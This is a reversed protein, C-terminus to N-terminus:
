ILFEEFEDPFFHEIVDPRKNYRKWFFQDKPSGDPSAFVLYEFFGYEIFTNRDEIIQSVKYDGNKSRAPGGISVVFTPEAPILGWQIRRIVASLM